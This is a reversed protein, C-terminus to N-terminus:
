ASIYDHCWERFTEDRFLHWVFRSFFRWYGIGQMFTPKPGYWSNFMANADNITVKEGKNTFLIHDAEKDDDGSKGLYEKIKEFHAGEPIEKELDSFICVTYSLFWDAKHMKFAVIFAEDMAKGNKMKEFWDKLQNEHTVVVRYYIPLRGGHQMSAQVLLEAKNM